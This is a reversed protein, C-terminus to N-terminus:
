LRITMRKEASEKAALALKLTNAASKLDVKPKEVKNVCALCHKMELYFRDNRESEVYRYQKWEVSSLDFWDVSKRFYDWIITSKECVIKCRRSPSRQLCDLHLTGIAGNEFRLNCVALDEVDMKLNSVHDAMCSVEAVPGILWQIYDFEHILELIVGGGLKSQSTVGHRYDTNPRWDPLYQGVEAQISLIKGFENGALLKFIYNLGADFRLDFGVLATKEGTNVINILDDIGDMGHSLPKEIFVNCGAKAAPIAVDLHFPSPNSVIVLNPKQKLAEELSVFVPIEPAEPYPESTTRCFLFDSQGLNRLNYFHRRGISGLGVILIKM